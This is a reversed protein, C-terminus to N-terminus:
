AYHYARSFGSVRPTEWAARPAAKRKAMSLMFLGGSPTQYEVALPRFRPPRIDKATIYRLTM